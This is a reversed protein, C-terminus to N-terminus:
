LDGSAWELMDILRSGFSARKVAVGLDTGDCAMRARLLPLLRELCERMNRMGGFKNAWMRVCSAQVNCMTRLQEETVSPGLEYHRELLSVAYAYAVLECMAEEHALTRIPSHPNKPSADVGLGNSKWVLHMIEHVVTVCADYYSTHKNLLYIDVSDTWMRSTADSGSTLNIGDPEKMLILRINNVKLHNCLGHDRLFGYCHLVIRQEVTTSSQAMTPKRSEYKSQVSPTSVATHFWRWIKPRARTYTAAVEL